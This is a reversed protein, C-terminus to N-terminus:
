RSEIFLKLHLRLGFDIFFRLRWGLLFFCFFLWRFVVQWHGGELFAARGPVGRDGLAQYFADVHHTLEEFAVLLESLPEFVCIPADVVAIDLDVLKCSLILLKFFSSGRLLGKRRNILSRTM